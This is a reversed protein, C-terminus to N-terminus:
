LVGLAFALAVAVAILYLVVDCTSVPPHQDPMPEVYTSTDAGFAERLTRPTRDRIKTDATM